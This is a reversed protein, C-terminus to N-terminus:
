DTLSGIAETGLSGDFVVGEGRVRELEGARDPFVAGTPIRVRGCRPCRFGEEWCLGFKRHHGYTKRYPKTRSGCDPCHPRSTM